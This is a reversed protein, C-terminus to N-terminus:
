SQPDLDASWAALREAFAAPDEGPLLITAACLGHKLANLKIKQQGEPTVPGRGKAGNERSARRQAPTRLPPETRRRRRTPQSTTPEADRTPAPPDPAEVAPDTALSNLSNSLETPIDNM